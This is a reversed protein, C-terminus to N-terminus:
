AYFICRCFKKTVKSVKFCKVLIFCAFIHIKHITFQRTNTKKYNYKKFFTLIKKREM